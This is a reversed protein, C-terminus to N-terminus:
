LLHPHTAQSHCLSPQPHLHVALGVFHSDPTSIWGQEMQWALVWILLQMLGPTLAGKGIPSGLFPM